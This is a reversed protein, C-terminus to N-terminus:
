GALEDKRALLRSHRDVEEVLDKIGMNSTELKIEKGDKFTVGVWSEPGKGEKGKLMKPPIHIVNTVVKVGMQRANSPLLSLFLRATKGTRSFPSFTATVSTFYRTIM